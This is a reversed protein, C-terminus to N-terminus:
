GVGLVDNLFAVGHKWVLYYVVVVFPLVGAAAPLTVIRADLATSVAWAIPGVLLTLLAGHVGIPWERRRRIAVYLVNWVGWLNPGLTAPFLAIREVPIPGHYVAHSASAVGLVLVLVMTPITIGAM